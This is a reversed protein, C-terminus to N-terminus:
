YSPPKLTLRLNLKELFNKKSIVQVINKSLHIHTHTHINTIDQTLIKLIWNLNFNFKIMNRFHEWFDNQDTHLLFHVSVYTCKELSMWMCLYAYLVFKDTYIGVFM